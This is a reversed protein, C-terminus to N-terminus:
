HKIKLNKITPFVYQLMAVISSRQKIEVNNIKELLHNQVHFDVLFQKINITIGYNLSLLNYGTKPQIINHHLNKDAHEFLLGLSPLFNTAKYAFSYGSM